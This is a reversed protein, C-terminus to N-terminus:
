RSKLGFAEFANIFKFRYDKHSDFIPRLLTQLEPGSHENSWNVVTGAEVMVLQGCFTYPDPLRKALQPKQVQLLKYVRLIVSASLGLIHDEDCIADVFATKIESILGKERKSLPAQLYNLDDRYQEFEGFGFEIQSAKFYKLNFRELLAKWRLDLIVAPLQAGIYGAVTYCRDEGEDFSEDFYGGALWM